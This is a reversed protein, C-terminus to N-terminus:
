NPTQTTSTGLLKKGLHRDIGAERISKTEKIKYWLSEHWQQKNSYNSRKFFIYLIINANSTSELLTCILKYKM